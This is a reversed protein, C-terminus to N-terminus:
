TSTKLGPPLGLPGEIGIGSRTFEIGSGWLFKKMGCGTESGFAGTSKRVGPPTGWIGSCCTPQDKYIFINSFINFFIM